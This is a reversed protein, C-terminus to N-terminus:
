RIHYNPTTLNMTSAETQHLSKPQQTIATTDFPYSLKSYTEETSNAKPTQSLNTYNAPISEQYIPNALTNESYHSNTTIEKRKHKGYFYSVILVITIFMIIVIIVIVAMVGGVISSLYSSSVAETCITPTPIFTTTITTYITLIATTSSPLLINPNYNINVDEPNLTIHVASEEDSVLRGTISFNKNTQTLAM